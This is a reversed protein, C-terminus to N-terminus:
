KIVVKRAHTKNYNKYSVKYSIIYTNAVSTDIQDVINGTSEETITIELNALHTVNDTNEMVNVGPNIEAYTDNIKLEVLQDGVLDSTILLQEGVITTEVGSSMNAKFISYASRVVYTNNGSTAPTTFHNNKTFGLLKLSDGNKIYVNYGIDGINKSNYSLRENLHKNQEKQNTFVSKFFKSLENKDIASPTKISDWTLNINSGQQKAQLNTPNELKSYRPSVETPETGKKFLETVIMNKPTFESPLMAPSTGKEVAVSIVDKPRTFSKNETYIGKAVAQFLKRFEASGFKNYYKTSIEDYGYWQAIAYDPTYSAIWLDNVANSPLKHDRFVEPPFNSTGTKACYNVNNVNWNGYLGWRAADLLVSSVMYATAPSMVKEKKIKHEYVENTDRYVIKTVSHPEIYYGGNAFSAYAAAMSMPSEGTYGGLSHSEHVLGDEIEPNLGISTIFDKINENSVSQFAKLAPVNRSTKLAERLTILGDYKFDWNHIPIGTSYAHPEDTFPHYTSWNNFEIGPAYDFLPKSTSGIHRETDTALNFGKLNTKHRGAGVAVVEGTKVDIVAIGADVVDNEWNYLEGSYVKNIHNQKELDFTTYIEMPVEFPDLETIKMVEDVVTNIVGVYEGGSVEKQEVILDHVTMEEAVKREESNIYGHRNMLYLVTKRRAEAEDPYLYPDYGNPAQFLGAILAAEPLTMDKAKKNFYLQSAQEVGYAGGYDRGGLYNSNAYLELIEFKTYKKEVKFISLYIDTFKRIIGKIGRDETSTFHNKVIQMTLTSAGGADQGLAQGFAAKLFRPLDFGNHQFFRSDETAIIADILVEPMEEYTIKERMEEGVKAIVKGDKSYIISAEKKYLKEPDFNPANKVIIFIFFIAFIIGIITLTFFAILIYKLRKRKKKDKSVVKKNNSPKKSPQRKSGVKNQSNNTRTKKTRTKKTRTKKKNKIIPPVFLIVNLTGIILLSLWFDFAMAGIILGLFSIGIILSNEKNKTIWKKIKVLKKKM